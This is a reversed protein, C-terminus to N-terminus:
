RAVSSRSKVFPWRTGASPTGVEEIVYVTTVLTSRAGQGEFGFPVIQAAIRSYGPVVPKGEKSVGVTVTIGFTDLMVVDSVRETVTVTFPVPPM